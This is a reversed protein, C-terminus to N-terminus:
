SAPSARGADQEALGRQLTTRLTAPMRQPRGAKDVVAHRTLGEVLLAGTTQDVIRYHFLVRVAGPLELRAELGLLQDYYAPKHYRVQVEYIPLMFGTEEFERYTYDLRRLWEARAREFWRLATAHNVVGMQDTDAYLPRVSAVLM